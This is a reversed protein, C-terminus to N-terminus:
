VLITVIGSVNKNKKQMEWVELYMPLSRSSCQRPQKFSGRWPVDRAFPNLPPTLAHAGSLKSGSVGTSATDARIAVPEFSM